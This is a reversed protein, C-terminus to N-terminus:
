PAPFHKRLANGYQRVAEASVGHLAAFEARTKYKKEDRDFAALGEVTKPYADALPTRRGRGASSADTSTPDEEIVPEPLEPQEIVVPVVDAAQLRRRHADLSATLAALQQTLDVLKQLLDSRDRLADSRLLQAAAGGASRLVEIPDAQGEGMGMLGAIAVPRPGQQLRDVDEGVGAVAVAEVTISSDAAGSPPLQTQSLLRLAGRLSDAGDGNEIAQEIRPWERAVRMYNHVQARKLGVMRAAEAEFEAAVDYDGRIALLAEGVSRAKPLTIERAVRVHALAFEELAMQVPRWADDPPLLRRGTFPSIEETM